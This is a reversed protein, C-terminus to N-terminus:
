GVSRKSEPAAPVDEREIASRDTHPSTSQAAIGRLFLEVVSQARRQIESADPYSRLGFLIQLHLDGRLMEIFQRAALDLDHVRIGNRSQAEALTERVKDIARKPAHEWFADAAPGFRGSESIAVKYLALTAPSM